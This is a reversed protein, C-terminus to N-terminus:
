GLRMPKLRNIGVEQVIVPVEQSPAINYRPVFLPMDRKLNFLLKIELFEISATCRGVCRTTERLHAGSLERGTIM